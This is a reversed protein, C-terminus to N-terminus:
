AVVKPTIAALVEDPVNIKCTVDGDRVLLCGLDYGDLVLDCLMRDDTEQGYGRDGLSVEVSVHLALVGQHRTARITCNPM